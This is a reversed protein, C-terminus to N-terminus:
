GDDEMGKWVYEAVHNFLFSYIAQIAKTFFWTSTSFAIWELNIIEEPGNFNRYLKAVGVELEDAIPIFGAIGKDFKFASVDSLKLWLHAGGNEGKQRRTHGQCSQLTYIGPLKNIKKIWELIQADVMNEGIRGKLFGMELNKRAEFDATM